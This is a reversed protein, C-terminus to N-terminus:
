LVLRTSTKACKFCEHTSCKILHYFKCQIVGFLPLVPVLRTIDLFYSLEFFLKGHWGVEFVGWVAIQPAQKAKIRDATGDPQSLVAHHQQV